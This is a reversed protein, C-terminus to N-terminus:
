KGTRIIVWNEIPTVYIIGDGLKGTHAASKITELATEVDEDPVAIEIKVRQRTYVKTTAGRHQFESVRGGTSESDSDDTGKVSGLVNTITIKSIDVAYLAERVSTVQYARIIASILKMIYEKSLLLFRFDMIPKRAMNLLM